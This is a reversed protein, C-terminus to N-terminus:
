SSEYLRKYEIAEELTKFYKHHYKGKIKKQYKWRNRNKVYCINKHGSTNNIRKGTNQQNESITVWRLNEVRNDLKDRNIHDVQPKNEINEIYHEAVLRHVTHAKKGEKKWLDILKYGRSNIWPKLYRKSNKSYVKGDEYILYNEYGVIEM